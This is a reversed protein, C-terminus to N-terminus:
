KTESPPQPAVQAVSEPAVPPTAIAPMARVSNLMQKRTEEDSQAFEAQSMIELPALAEPEPRATIWFWVTLATLGAALLLLSIAVFNLSVGLAVAVSVFFFMVDAYM